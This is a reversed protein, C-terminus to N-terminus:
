ELSGAQRPPPCRPGRGPLQVEQVTYKLTLKVDQRRSRAPLALSLLTSWPPARAGALFVM